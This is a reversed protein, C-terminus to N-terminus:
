REIYDAVAVDNVQGHEDFDLNMGPYDSLGSPIGIDYRWATTGKWDPKGLVSRVEARSRGWLPDDCQVLNEVIPRAKQFTEGSLPSMGRVATWSSRDFTCGGHRPAAVAYTVLGVVVLTAIALTWNRTKPWSDMSAMTPQNPAAERRV